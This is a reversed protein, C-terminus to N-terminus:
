RVHPRRVVAATRLIGNPSVNERDKQCRYPISSASGQTPLYREAGMNLM